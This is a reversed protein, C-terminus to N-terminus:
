AFVKFAAESMVYIDDESRVEGHASVFHGEDLGTIVGPKGKILVIVIEDRDRKPKILVSREM